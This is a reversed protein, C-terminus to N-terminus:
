LKYFKIGSIEKVKVKNGGLYLPIHGRQTYGQVDSITFRNGTKKSYNENM